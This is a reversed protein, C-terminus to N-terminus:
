PVHGLIRNIPDKEQVSAWISLLKLETSTLTSSQQGHPEHENRGKWVTPSVLPEHKNRGKWVCPQTVLVTDSLLPISQIEIEFRMIQKEKWYICRKGVIERRLSRECTMNSDKNQPAADAAACGGEAPTLVGSV